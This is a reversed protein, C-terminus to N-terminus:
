PSRRVLELNAIGTEREQKFGGGVSFQRACLEIDM